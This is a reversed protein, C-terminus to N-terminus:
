ERDTLRSRSKAAQQRNLKEIERAVLQALQQEDMGPSPYINFIPQFPAASPQSMM